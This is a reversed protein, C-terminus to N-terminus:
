KSRERGRRGAWGEYKAGRGAGVRKRGKEQGSEVEEGQGGKMIAMERSWEEGERERCVREGHRKERGM